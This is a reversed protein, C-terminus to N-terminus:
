PSGAAPVEVRATEIRAGPEGRSLEEVGGDYTLCFLTCGDAGGLQCAIAARPAVDIRAIVRGDPAVQVFAGGMAGAVWVNGAQDLCIGDPVLEPLECLVRRNALMGDAAIDFASVRHGFSEAVVLTRGGDTILLGNPFDLDQAVHRCRGDAEVLTIEASRPEGGGFLDYGMNGVWARGSADVVMDNIDAAVLASLDAHLVLAGDVVRYLRRETMSVVLPTGDPLFGLGSPRGPVEVVAERAGAADIAYVTHAWIDSVWLRGAHWRPGELFVFDDAFPTTAYTQM